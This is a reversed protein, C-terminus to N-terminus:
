VVLALEGVESVTNRAILDLLHAEACTGGRDVDHVLLELIRLHETYIQGGVEVEAVSPRCRQLSEVRLGEVVHVYLIDVVFVAALLEIGYIRAHGIGVVGGDDVVVHSRVAIDDVQLIGVLTVRVRQRCLHALCEVETKREICGVREAM